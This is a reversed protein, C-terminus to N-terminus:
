GTDPTSLHEWWGYVRFIGALRLIAITPNMGAVNGSDVFTPPELDDITHLHTELTHCPQTRSEIRVRCFM